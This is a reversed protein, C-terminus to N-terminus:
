PPGQGVEAHEQRTLGGGPAPVSAEKGTGCACGGDEPPAAQGHEAKVRSVLEAADEVDAHAVLVTTAVATAKRAAAWAEKTAERRRGICCSQWCRAGRGWGM